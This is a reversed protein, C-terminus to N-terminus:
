MYVILPMHVYLFVEFYHKKLYLESSCRGLNYGYNGNEYKKTNVLNLM